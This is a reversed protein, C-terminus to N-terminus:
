IKEVFSQRFEINNRYSISSIESKEGAVSSRLETIELSIPIYPKRTAIFSIRLKKLAILSILKKELPIERNQNTLM